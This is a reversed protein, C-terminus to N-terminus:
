TGCYFIAVWVGYIATELWTQCATLFSRANSACTCSSDAGCGSPSVDRWAVVARQRWRRRRDSAPPTEPRSRWRSTPSRRSTSSWRGIRTRRLGRSSGKRRSADLVVAQTTTVGRPGTRLSVSLELEDFFTQVGRLDDDVEEAFQAFAQHALAAAEDSDDSNSASAQAISRALLYGEHLQKMESALAGVPVSKCQLVLNIEDYFNVLEGREEM